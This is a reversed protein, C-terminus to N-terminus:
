TSGVDATQITYASSNSGIATGDRKWQFTVIGSGNLDSTNATLTQGVQATGNIIVTGTLTPLGTELESCAAFTFLLMATFVIARFLKHNKM